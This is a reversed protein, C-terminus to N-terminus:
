VFSDERLRVEFGMAYLIKIVVELAAYKWKYDKEDFAGLEDSRIQAAMIADQLNM